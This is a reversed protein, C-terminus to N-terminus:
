QGKMYVKILLPVKPARGECTTPKVSPTCKATWCWMRKPAAARLLQGERRDLYERLRQITSQGNPKSSTQLGTTIM